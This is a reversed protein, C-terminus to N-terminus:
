KEEDDEEKEGKSGKIRRRTAHHSDMIGDADSGDDATSLSTFHRGQGEMWGEREYVQDRAGDGGVAKNTFLPRPREKANARDGNRSCHGITQLSQM